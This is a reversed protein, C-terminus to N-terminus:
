RQLKVVLSGYGNELRDAKIAATLVKMFVSGLPFLIRAPALPRPWAWGGGSEAPPQPEGHPFGSGNGRRGARETGASLRLCRKGAVKGVPPLRTRAPRRRRRGRVKGGSPTPGPPKQKNHHNHHNHHHNHHRSSSLM